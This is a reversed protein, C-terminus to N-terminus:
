LKYCSGNCEITFASDIYKKPPPAIPKRLSISARKVYAPDTRTGFFFVITKKECFIFYRFFYCLFYHLLVCFIILYVYFYFFGCVWISRVGFLYPLCVLIGELDICFTSIVICFTSLSRYM